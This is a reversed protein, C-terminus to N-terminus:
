TEQYSEVYIKMEDDTKTLYYDRLTHFSLRKYGPGMTKIAEIVRQYYFADVIKFPMCANNMWKYISLDCWQFAVKNQL